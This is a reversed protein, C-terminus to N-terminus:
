VADIFEEMSATKSGHHGVKLITAKIDQNSKLIEKEVLEEADGTM